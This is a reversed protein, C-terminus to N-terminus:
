LEKKGSAAALEKFAARFPNHVRDPFAINRHVHVASHPDEQIFETGNGFQRKEIGQEGFRDEDTFRVVRILLDTEKLLDKLKKLCLEVLAGTQFHDASQKQVANRCIKRKRDSGPKRVGEQFYHVM